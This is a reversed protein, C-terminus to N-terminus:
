VEKRGDHTENQAPLPYYILPCYPPPTEFANGGEECANPGSSLGQQLFREPAQSTEQFASGQEPIGRQTACQLPTETLIQEASETENIISSRNLTIESGRQANKKLRRKLIFLYNAKKNHQQQRYQQNGNHNPKTQREVTM